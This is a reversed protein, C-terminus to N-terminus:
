QLSIKQVFYSSDKKILSFINSSSDTWISNGARASSEIHEYEKIFRKSNLDFLYTKYTTHVLLHNSDLLISEEFEFPVRVEWEFQRSVTNFARIFNHGVKIDNGYIMKSQSDYSYSYLKDNFDKIISQTTTNYIKFKTPRGGGQVFGSIYVLDDIVMISRSTGIIDLDTKITWKRKGNKIDLATIEVPFQHRFVFIHNEDVTYDYVTFGQIKYALEIDLHNFKIKHAGFDRSNSIILYDKSSFLRYSGRMPHRGQFEYNKWVFLMSTSRDYNSTLIMTDNGYELLSRQPVGDPFQFRRVVKGDNPNILSVSFGSVCYYVVWLMGLQDIKTYLVPYICDEGLKTLFTKDSTKSPTKFCTFTSPSCNPVVSFTFCLSICFFLILKM